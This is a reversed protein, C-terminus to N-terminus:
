RRRRWVWDTTRWWEDGHMAWWVGFVLGALHVAQGGYNKGRELVTIFAIAGMILAATRIRIPFLFYIYLEATPFLVAVMGLLGYICGSAGVAPMLPNLVGRAGLVTYFVNGALGCLTYITFFKRASWLQEMPRGLFHLAIMNVLLHMAGAHLYQATILRWLEGHIVALSQMAGLGFILRNWYPSQQQIFWVAVNIVILTTVISFRGRPSGLRIDGPGDPLLPRMPPEQHEQAALFGPLWASRRAFTFPHRM